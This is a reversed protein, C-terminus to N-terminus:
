AEEDVPQILDGVPEEAPGAPDGDNVGRFESFDDEAVEPLRHLQIPSSGLPEGTGASMCPGRRTMKLDVFNGPRIKVRVGPHCGPRPSDAHVGSMRSPHFPRCACGAGSWSGTRSAAPLRSM